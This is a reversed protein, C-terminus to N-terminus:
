SQKNINFNVGCKWCCSRNSAQEFGCNPCIIKETNSLSVQVTEQACDTITSSARDSKYPNTTGNVSSNINRQENNIINQSYDHNLNVLIDSNKVLRGFGYMISSGAWSLLSGIVAILIGILTLSEDKIMLVIGVIVSAIIGLWCLIKALIKIKEGINDFM